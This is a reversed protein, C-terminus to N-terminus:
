PSGTPTAVFAVTEGTAANIAAGSIVGANNIDNAYLLRGEYGPALTKLDAMAGDEWIFARLGAAGTSQGVVQGRDNIGLAQSRIDGPLTDLPEFGGRKSWVFARENFDNGVTGAANAFGVVVGKNNIAMPTNWAEGGFNGIDIPEGHEWLVAHRASFGGVANACIGSIGVVQGRNNIATASSATDGRLPRLKRVRDDRRTDWIAARFGLFQDIQNCTRDPARVEAWGVVQGRSNAGTAFGHTGGFTDLARMEGREWVFGVCAHKTDVGFFASCSWAENLPDVDTTETIGVVMRNNKVPWLVASNSDPGGLTGLDLASGNRWLTAHMVADGPLQSFGAVWGRNNISNGASSTGGLSELETVVYQTKGRQQEGHQPDAGATATVGIVAMLPIALAGRLLATGLGITRVPRSGASIGQM